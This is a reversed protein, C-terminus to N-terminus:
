DLQIRDEEDPLAAAQIAQRFKEPAGQIQEHIEEATGTDNFGWSLVLRIAQEDLLDFVAKLQHRNPSTDLDLGDLVVDHLRGLDDDSTYRWYAEKVESDRRRALDEGTARITTSKRDEAFRRELTGCLAHYPAANVVAAYVQDLLMEKEKREAEQLHWWGLAKRAEDRYHETLTKPLFRWGTDLLGTLAKNKVDELLNDIAQHASDEMGYDGSSGLTELVSTIEELTGQLEHEQHSLLTRLVDEVAPAADHVLSPNMAVGGLLQGLVFLAQETHAELTLPAPDPPIFDTTM